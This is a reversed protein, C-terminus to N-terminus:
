RRRLVEGRNCKAPYGAPTFKVANWSGSHAYVFFDDAEGDDMSIEYPGAPLAWTVKCWTDDEQVEALVFAPPYNSDWMGIDIPTIAGSVAFTDSVIVELYGPKSFAVDYEGEDVYLEYYGEDDTLAQFEGAAVTVGPLPEESDNDVVHGAFFAPTYVHMTNYIIWDPNEPDNSELLLDQTFTGPEYGESDYTITIPQTEGAPVEGWTPDIAVIFDAPQSFLIALDNHLYTNNFVVQLGASPTSSQIGVTCSNLSIADDLQDYLIMIKGNKYLIVQAWVGGAQGYRGYNEFQVITYDTFNQYFVMSQGSRYVLDDWMWAIFDKYTSSGTPISTNGLSIYNSTFGVTGNSNIWFQTKDEGYFPFSFGINFPGVVNDDALGSVIAGTTSIDTWNYSPGGNEDSDIWIYGFSDPGGAGLVVPYGSGNSSEDGKQLDPERPNVPANVQNQQLGTDNLLNLATFEPFAFALTGEGNNYIASFVDVTFGEWVWGHLDNPDVTLDPNSWEVCSPGAPVTAGEDYIAQVTYCYQGFDPLIDSFATNVTTGIIVGDRRVMFFQIDEGEWEWELSVEGTIDDALEVELNYPPLLSDGMIQMTVPITITGVNPSSSIIIQANYQEGPSTNLASLHTPVNDVGGFPDVNGSYYDLTLWDGGGCSAFLQGPLIDPPGSNGTPSYWVQNGQNDDIYYYPEGIWSAPTFITTIEDGSTVDFYFTSPGFGGSLTINDLVVQGNVLVDLACGNWGDGYADYLRISYECSVLPQSLFEVSANWGLPGNGNNLISVSTSFYENPNLTREIVLPNVVINPQTLTFNHSTTDGTFVAISDITTNYGQKGCTIEIIGSPLPELFYHGDPGSITFAGGAMGVIAGSIALGDYNFVYGEAAGTEPCNM